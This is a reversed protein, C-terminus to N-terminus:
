CDKFRKVSVQAHCLDAAPPDHPILVTDKVRFSYFLDIFIPLRRGAGCISGWDLQHHHNQTKWTPFSVTCVVSSWIMFLSMGGANMLYAWFWRQCFDARYLALSEGTYLDLVGRQLIHFGSARSPEREREKDTATFVPQPWAFTLCPM